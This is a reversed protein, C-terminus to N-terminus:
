KLDKVSFVIGRCYLDGDEMINFTAHPIDTKYIWSCDPEAPCWVAEISNFSEDKGYKELTEFDDESPFKGDKTFNIVQGDWCGIEDNIAGRFECNDDSYGFVVVLGSDKAQKEEDKDIENGYERQDLMKALYEKTM